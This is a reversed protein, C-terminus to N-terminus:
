DVCTAQISFETIRWANACEDCRYLTYGLDSLAIRYSVRASSCRPCIHPARRSSVLDKHLLDLSGILNELAAIKAKSSEAAELFERRRGTGSLGEIRALGISMKRVNELDGQQERLKYVMEDLVPMLERAEAIERSLDRALQNRAVEVAEFDEAQQETTLYGTAAKIKVRLDNIERGM